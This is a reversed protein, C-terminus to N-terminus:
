KKSLTQNFLKHTEQWVFQQAEEYDAMAMKKTPNGDQEIFHVGSPIDRLLSDSMAEGCDDLTRLFPKFIKILTPLPTPLDKGWNTSVTGPAAHIFAVRQNEPQKAFAELCLDNYMGASNAANSLSYNTKVEFDERFKDYPKHVGASLITLVKGGTSSQRLLPLLREIFYMRGFYHLQLKQDIGESTETRGQTTAIGQTLVLFDLTKNETKLEDELSACFRDINKMTSTDCAIFRHQIKGDEEGSLQYLETVIERGRTENRGAITVSVKAKALRKAIGEGIGSTGGVVLSNKGTLSINANAKKISDLSKKTETHLCQARSPAALGALVAGGLVRTPRIM